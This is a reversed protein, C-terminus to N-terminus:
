ILEHYINLFNKSMLEISFNNKIRNYGNSGIQHRKFEDILLSNIKECIQEIEEGPIIYGTTNNIILEKTGGKSTAIVPKRNAMYEIISNSIGEYESFLVCITSISIFTDVDSTSGLFLVNNIKEDKIRNKFNNLNEGDGIALFLINKQTFKKAVNIFLEYNKFRNFSAVMLVIYKYNLQYNIILDNKKQPKKIRDFNYGNYVVRTKNNHIKYANLGAFSNSLIIDSFLFVSKILFTEFNFSYVRPIADAINGTILKTKLFLKVPIAYFSEMLGWSHIIDVRNKSIISFLKIFTHLSRRKYEKNLIIIDTFIDEVDKFDIKKELLILICNINSNLKLYRALEVLRREKGGFSLSKIFFVIKM